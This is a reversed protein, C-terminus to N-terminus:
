LGCMIKSADIGKRSCLWRVLSDRMEQTDFIGHIYTGFVLGDSSATGDSGSFERGLKRNIRLVSQKADDSTGSSIPLSGPVEITLLVYGDPVMQPTMHVLIEAGATNRLAM